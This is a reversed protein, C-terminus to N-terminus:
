IRGVSSEFRRSALLVRVERVSPLVGQVAKLLKEEFADLSGEPSAALFAGLPRCGDWSVVWELALYDGLYHIRLDRIEDAPIWTEIIPDIARCIHSRDPLRNRRDKMDEVDVHVTVDAVMPHSEMLRLRVTHSIFHGESVTIKPSVEVHVDCFVQAGMKRTRLHHLHLVDPVQQITKAISDLELPSVGGDSLEYSAKAFWKVGM